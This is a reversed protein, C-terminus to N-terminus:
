VIIRRIENLAARTHTKVTGLPMSLIEAIEKQTHGGFYALDIITKYEPKLNNLLEKVGIRDVAISHSHEKDVIHVNNNISQISVRRLSRLKDIATNRSINLMWTFLTGKSKDYNDINKWIKIFAEQLVDEATEPENNLISLVIGYLAGSYNDYLYSFAAKDKVKLLRVLEDERYKLKVPMQQKNLQLTLFILSGTTAYQTM